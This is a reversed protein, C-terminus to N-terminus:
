VDLASRGSAVGAPRRGASALRTDAPSQADAAPQTL